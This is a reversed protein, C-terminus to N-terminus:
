QAASATRTRERMMALLGGVQGGHRQIVSAFESRQTVLMSIGEIIVDNIKFSGHDAILRWDVKVPPESGTSIIDTSVITGGEDTRSGRVRFTEGNFNSLRTGYVFVVYDEFLRLFEQQEEESASRWYRGLVFRAIGPGDFDAQFLQRFRALRETLPAKKSLVEVAGNWLENMFVNADAAIANPAASLSASAILVSLITL